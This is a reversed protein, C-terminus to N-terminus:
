NSAVLELRKAAKDFFYFEEGKGAYDARAIMRMGDLSKSVISVSAGELAKELSAQTKQDDADLHFPREGAGSAVYAIRARAVRPDYVLRTIPGPTAVAPGFAGADLDYDYLALGGGQNRLVQISRPGAGVGMFSIQENKVQDGALEGAKKFGKGGVDAAMIEIKKSAEYQDIRAVPEGSADVIWDVTNEEGDAIRKSDGTGLNASQLSYLLQDQGNKNLRSPGQGRSSVAPYSRAFLARQNDTPMSSVLVGASQLFYYYDAGRANGFLTESKGTVRSISLWRQFELTKLGTITDLGGKEGAVRLLLHEDGGWELEEIDMVGLGIGKPPAAADDADYIAFARQDGADRLVVFHKGGPSIEVGYVKDAAAASTVGLAVALIAAVAYYPKM